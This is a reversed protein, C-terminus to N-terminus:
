YDCKENGREQLNGTPPGFCLLVFYGLVSDLFPVQYSLSSNRVQYSGGTKSRPGM